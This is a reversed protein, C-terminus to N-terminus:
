DNKKGGYLWPNRMAKFGALSRLMWRPILTGMLINVLAGVLLPYCLSYIVGATTSSVFRFIWGLLVSFVGNTPGFAGMLVASVLIVAISGDLVGKFSRSFGASLASDLTKGADFEERIREASVVNAYVCMGVALLMGMIGPLTLVTSQTNPFFGSIAAIMLAVQGLISICAVLGPLRYVVILIIGVALLAVGVALVITSKANMGLTPSIASYGDNTLAFPLSGTNIQDAMEKATEVTFNGSIAAEGNDIATSIRVNSLLTDDMWISITQGVLDATAQAFKERGSAEGNVGTDTFKISVGPENTQSNIIATASEVDDGTLLVDGTPNGDSDTSSGEHFTLVDQQGLDRIAEQIDLDTWGEGQPFRVIIRDTSADVYVEGDTINQNLLRTRLVEEATAMEEETADYEDAPYFVVEIGGQIDIGWQVDGLGKVYTRTVDGYTTSIGFFSAFSILAILLVLIFVVPKGVRKM